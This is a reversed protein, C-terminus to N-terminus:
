LPLSGQSGSVLSSLAYDHRIARSRLLVRGVRRLSGGRAAWHGGRGAAHEACHMHLNGIRLGGLRVWRGRALALWWVYMLCAGLFAGVGPAWLGASGARSGLCGMHLSCDCVTLWPPVSAGHWVVVWRLSSGRRAASGGALM